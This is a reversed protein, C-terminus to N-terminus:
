EDEIIKQLIDFFHGTKTFCAIYKTFNIGLFVNEDNGKSFIYLLKKDFINYM